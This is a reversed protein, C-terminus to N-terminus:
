LLRFFFKGCQRLKCRLVHEDSLVKKNLSGNISISDHRDILDDPDIFVRGQVFEEPIMEANGICQVDTGVPMQVQLTRLIDFGINITNHVVKGLCVM